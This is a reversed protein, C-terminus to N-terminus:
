AHAARMGPALRRRLRRKSGPSASLTTQLNCPYGHLEPARHGAAVPMGNRAERRFIARGRARAAFPTPSSSAKSPSTGVISTAASTSHRRRRRFTCRRPFGSRQMSRIASSARFRRLSGVDPRPDRRCLRTISTVRRARFTALRVAVHLGNRSPICPVSPVGELSACALKSDGPAPHSMRRLFRDDDPPRPARRCRSRRRSSRREPSITRHFVNRISARQESKMPRISAATEAPRAVVRRADFVRLPADLSLRRLTLRTPRVTARRSSFARTDLQLLAHGTIPFGGIAGVRFRM